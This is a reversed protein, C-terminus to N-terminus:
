FKKESVLQKQGKRSKWSFVESFVSKNSWLFIFAIFKVIARTRDRVIIFRWTVSVGTPVPDVRTPDSLWFLRFVSLKSHKLIYEVKRPLSPLM